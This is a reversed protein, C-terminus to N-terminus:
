VVGLQIASDVSCRPASNSAGGCALRPAAKGSARGTCASPHPEARPTCCFSDSSQKGSFLLVDEEEGYRELKRRAKHVWCSVKLEMPFILYLGACFIHVELAGSLAQLGM